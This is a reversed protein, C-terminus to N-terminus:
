WPRRPQSARRTAAPLGLVTARMAPVRLSTVIRLAIIRVFVM